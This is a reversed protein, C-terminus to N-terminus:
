HARGCGFAPIRFGFFVKFSVEIATVIHLKCYKIQVEAHKLGLIPLCGLVVITASVPEANGMMCIYQLFFLTMHQDCMHSRIMSFAKMLYNIFGVEGM